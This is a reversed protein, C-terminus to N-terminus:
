SARFSISRESGVCSSLSLFPKMAFVLCFTREFLRGVMFQTHKSIQWNNEVSTPWELISQVICEEFMPFKRELRSKGSNFGIAIADAFFEMKFSTESSGASSLSTKIISMGVLCCVKVKM